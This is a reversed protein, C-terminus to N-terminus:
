TIFMQRASTLTVALLILYEHTVHHIDLRDFLMECVQLHSDQPINRLTTQYLYVLTESASAEEVM